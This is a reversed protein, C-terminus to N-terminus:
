GAHQLKSPSNTIKEFGDKTIIYTDEDRFGGTQSDYIGPEITCVVNKELKENSGPIFFPAEQDELGLGHGAHHPFLGPYGAQDIAEFVAKYIDKCPTGPRLLQEAKSKANLIVNFIEEQKANPKGVVYTRAGDAWYNNAVAQLDLIISDGQRFKRRTPPGGIELTREGSIWTDGRSFEFPGYRLISDSMVDRCLAIETKGVAIKAKAAKYALELRRTAERLNALEDKGKTKRMTLIFDSIGILRTRPAVRSLAHFYAQPFHWDDIGISKCDRLLKRDTLFSYLEQAVFGGYAIMRTTLAYDEFTSIEGDFVRRAENARSEGLFLIDEVNTLILVSLSRPWYTSYGTFYHIHRPDTTITADIKRKLMATAFARRRERPSNKTLLNPKM